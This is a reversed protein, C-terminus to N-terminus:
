SFILLKNNNEAYMTCQRRLVDASVTLEIHNYTQWFLQKLEGWLSSKPDGTTGRVMWITQWDTQLSKVNEDKEGSGCPWNGGFKAVLSFSFPKKKLYLAVCKAM